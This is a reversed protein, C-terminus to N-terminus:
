AAGTTEEEKNEYLLSAIAGVLLEIEEALKKSKIAKEDFVIVLIENLLTALPDKECGLEYAHMIIDARSAGNNLEKQLDKLTM